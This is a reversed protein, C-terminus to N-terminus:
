KTVLINSWCEFSKTTGILEQVPPALRLSESSRQPAIQFVFFFFVCLRIDQIKQM